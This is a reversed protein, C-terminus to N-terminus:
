HRLEELLKIQETPMDFRPRDPIAHLHIFIDDLPVSVSILASQQAFGTPKLDQNKDAIDRLYKHLVEGGNRLNGISSIVWALLTIAIIPLLIILALKQYSGFLFSGIMSTSFGKAFDKEQMSLVTGFYNSIAAIFFITWFGKTINLTWRALTYLM